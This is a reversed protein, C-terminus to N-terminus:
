MAGAGQLFCTHNYNISVIKKGRGSTSHGQLMIAAASSLIFIETRIFDGTLFSSGM